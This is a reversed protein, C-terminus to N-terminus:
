IDILPTAVHLLRNLGPRTLELLPLAPPPTPAAQPDTRAGTEISARADPRAPPPVDGPPAGGPTPIRITQAADLFLSQAQADRSPGAGAPLTARPDDTM